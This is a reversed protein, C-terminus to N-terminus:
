GELALGAEIRQEIYYEHTASKNLVITAGGSSKKKGKSM